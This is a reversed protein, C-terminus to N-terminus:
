YRAPPWGCFPSMIVFVVVHGILFAIVMGYVIRQLLRDELKSAKELLQYIGAAMLLYLAGVSPYYYFKFMVRDTILVIPIWILWTGVFWSLAFMGLSDRKILKYVGYILLPITLAWLNWNPNSQYTPTYWMWMPDHYFVWEWPYSKASHDVSAFTLSESTNLMFDIRDWPWEWHNLALFDFLPMLGLFAAPAVILFIAGDRKPKRRTLLWHLLIIGGAFAGNLKVLASLAVMVAAPLYRNHLYLLFAALMFTFCFVDLMALGSMVFCMNEFAFLFTALVAFWKKSTLKRCIFYFIVISVTGFIISAIRWGFPENGFTKIGTAILLKGLSPHEPNYKDATLDEGKLLANAEPIYHNEDFMKSDVDAAIVLHLILMFLFIALACINPWEKFWRIFKLHMSIPSLASSEETVAPIIEDALPSTIEPHETNHLM